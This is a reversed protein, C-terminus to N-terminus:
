FNRPYLKEHSRNSYQSSFKRMLEVFAFYSADILAIEDLKGNIGKIYGLNILAVLEDLVKEPPMMLDVYNTVYDINTDYQSAGGPLTYSVTHCGLTSRVSSSIASAPIVLIIQHMPKLGSKLQTSAGTKLPRPLGSCSRPM